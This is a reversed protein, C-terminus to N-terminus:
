APIPDTGLWAGIDDIVPRFYAIIRGAPDAGAGDAWPAMGHLIRRHLVIVEGPAASIEVRKRREFIARRTDAYLKTLDVTKRSEGPVEGLAKDFAHGIDIHSGEWVTLPAAGPDAATLPLGVIVAHPEHLFRRREAGVPLLGDVHAADRTLRFRHAADTEGADRGPYGPFIASVQARHLTRGPGLVGRVHEPLAVGGISGDPANDLADVGVFWTGGHRLWNRRWDPDSIVDQAPGLAARGWAAVDETAPLVGYGKETLEAGLRDAAVRDTAGGVPMM